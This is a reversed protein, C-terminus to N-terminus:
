EADDKLADFAENLAKMSSASINVDEVRRDRWLDPRRNKLWFIQATTDPPVEKTTEIMHDRMIGDADKWREIRTEKITFGGRARKLLACEVEDDVPAKGRKLAEVLEVFQNQWKYLCAATVGM